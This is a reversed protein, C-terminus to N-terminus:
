EVDSAVRFVASAYTVVSQAEPEEAQGYDLLTGTVPGCVQLLTYIAPFGCVNRADQDGAIRGFFGKADGDLAFKLLDMDERRVAWLREADVAYGHGFKPGEHALDVAGIVCVRTGRESITERLAGIFDAVEPADMADKGPEVARLLSSCLIPAIRVDREGGFVHRLFVAQFEISHEAQFEISHEARLVLCDDRADLPCRRALDAMFERDRPVSGLPTDFDMDCPVFLRETMQHAIGLIVFLDAGCAEGIARYTAGYSHAGRAFDIHPALAAVIPGDDEAQAGVDARALCDDLFARLDDPDEHYASGAHAAPRLELGAFVSVARDRAAWYRENELFLAEDLARVVQELQEKRLRVGLREEIERRVDAISNEGDLLDLAPALAYPVVLTHPSVHIPDRLAVFLGQEDRIPIVEVARLKPYQM